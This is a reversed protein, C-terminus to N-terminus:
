DTEPHEDGFPNPGLEITEGFDYYREEREEELEQECSKERVDMIIGPSWKSQFHTEFAAWLCNRLSLASAYESAEHEEDEFVEQTLYVGEDYDYHNESVLIWGNHARTITVKM